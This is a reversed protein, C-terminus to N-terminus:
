EMMCVISITQKPPVYTRWGDATRFVVFTRGDALSAFRSAPGTAAGYRSFTISYLPGMRQVAGLEVVIRGASDDAWGGPRRYGRAIFNRAIEAPISDGVLYRHVTPPLTDRVVARALSAGPNHFEPWPAAGDLIMAAVHETIERMATSDAVGAARTRASFGRYALARDLASGTTFAVLADQDTRFGPRVAILMTGFVFRGSDDASGFRTLFEAAVDRHQTREVTRLASVAAPPISPALQPPTWTRTDYSSEFSRLWGAWAQWPAGVPPVAFVSDRTTRVPNAGVAALAAERLFPHSRALTIVTDAWRAPDLAFRAILGLQKLRPEHASPWENAIARCLAAPCTWRTSDPLAANPLLQLAGVFFYLDPHVGHNFAYGPDALLPHVLDYSASSLGYIFQPYLVATDGTSLIAATVADNPVGSVHLARIAATHAAFDRSRALVQLFSDRVVPDRAGLRRMLSTDSIVDVPPRAPAMAVVPASDVLAIVATTRQDLRTASRFSRGDALHLTATGHLAVTDAIWLTMGNLPNVLRWGTVTGRANRSVTAISDPPTEYRGTLGADWPIADNLTVEASDRVLALRMGRLVSDRLFRTVRTGRLLSHSAGATASRAIAARTTGAVPRQSSFFDGIGDFQETLEISAGDRDEAARKPSPGGCEQPAARKNVMTLLSFVRGDAGVVVDTHSAMLGNTSSENQSLWISRARNVPVISDLRLKQQQTTFATFADPQGANLWRRQTLITITAGPTLEQAGATQ